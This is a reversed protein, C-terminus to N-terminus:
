TYLRKKKASWYSYADIFNFKEMEPGCLAIRLCYELNEEGKFYLTFFIKLFIFIKGLKSRLDDKILNMASFGRECIATSLPLINAITGLKIINPFQKINIPNNLWVWFKSNEYNTDQRRVMTKFISWENRIEEANIIPDFCKNGANKKKGFMEVLAEIEHYGYSLSEDKTLTNLKEISFIEFLEIKKDKSFRINLYDYIGKSYNKMLENTERVMLDNKSIIFNEVIRGESYKEIFTKYNPGYRADDVYNIRLEEMCTKM